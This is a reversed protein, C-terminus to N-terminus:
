HNTTVRSIDEKGGTNKKMKKINFFKPFFMKFLFNLRIKVQFVFKELFKGIEKHLFPSVEDSFFLVSSEVGM